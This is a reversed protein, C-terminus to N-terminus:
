ISVIDREDVVRIPGHNRKYFLDVLSVYSSVLASRPPEVVDLNQSTLLLMKMM